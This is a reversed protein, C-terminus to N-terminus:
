PCSVGCARQYLRTTVRTLRDMSYGWREALNDVANENLWKRRDRQYLVAHGAEHSLLATLSEDDLAACLPGNILLLKESAKCIAWWRRGPWSIPEIRVEFGYLVRRAESPLSELAAFRRALLREAEFDTIRV